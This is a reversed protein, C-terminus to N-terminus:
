DRQFKKTQASGESKKPLVLLSGLRKNEVTKTVGQSWADVQTTALEYDANGHRRGSPLIPGRPTNPPILFHIPACM